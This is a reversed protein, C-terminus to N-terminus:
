GEATQRAEATARLDTSSVDVRFEGSPIATFLDRFAAPINLDDLGLFTGATNVRGAVLFRCARSRLSDLAEVMRAESDGYFRPQVIRAATDAGIAFAAGPFLQAKEPFTPARTLWLTARWAFQSLRRRVEEAALAGKDANVVTLEYAVSAGFRRAAAEALTCHGTHLPNFSGPL